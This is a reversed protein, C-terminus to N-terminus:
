LKKFVAFTDAWLKPKIELSKLEAIKSIIHNPTESLYHALAFSAITPSRSMGASCAVLTRTNSKLLDTVTKLAQLIMEPDNGDGDNLPFRCYILQRPTPSPPEEYAVDVVASIKLDFLARPERIDFAHGIWLLDPHVEHM